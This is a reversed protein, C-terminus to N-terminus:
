ATSRVCAMQTHVDTNLSPFSSTRAGSGSHRASSRPICLAALSMSPPPHHLIRTPPVLAQVGRRPDPYSAHRPKRRSDLISTLSSSIASYPLICVVAHRPDLEVLSGELVRRLDKKKGLSYDSFNYFLQTDYLRCRGEMKKAMNALFSSDWKWYEGVFFFDPGFEQQLRQMFELTFSQSMHKMADLRFGSLGLTRVIWIGWNIVDARLDPNANYTLNAGM